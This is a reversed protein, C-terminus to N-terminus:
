LSHKFFKNNRKKDKINVGNLFVDTKLILQENSVNSGHLLRLYCTPVADFVIGYEKPM